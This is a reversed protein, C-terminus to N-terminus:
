YGGGIPITPQHNNVPEFDFKRSFFFSTTWTYNNIPGLGHMDVQIFGKFRFDKSIDPHRDSNDLIILGNEVLYDPAIKACDERKIGDIIIVDFQKSLDKISNVYDDEKHYYIHHNKINESKVQEYWGEDSEISYVEKARKCFFLSSNGSGWEFITKSKLDLQQLYELAPFTIWPIPLKNTDLAQQTTRSIAHGYGHEIINVYGQPKPLDFYIPTNLVKAIIKIIKRRM